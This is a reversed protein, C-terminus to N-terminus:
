YPYNEVDGLGDEVLVLILVGNFGASLWTLRGGLGDEVLVLILVEYPVVRLTLKVGAGLGDEVLVLILVVRILVRFPARPGESVM